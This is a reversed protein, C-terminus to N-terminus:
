GASALPSEPSRGSSREGSGPDCAAARLAAAQTEADLMAPLRQPSQCARRAVAESRRSAEVVCRPVALDTQLEATPRESNLASGIAPDRAASLNRPRHPTPIERHRPMPTRLEALPNHWVVYRKAFAWAIEVRGSPRENAPSAPPATPSRPAPSGNRPPRQEAPDDGVGARVSPVEVCGQDGDERSGSRRRVVCPTLASCCRM